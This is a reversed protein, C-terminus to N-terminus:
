AREGWLGGTYPVIDKCTVDDSVSLKEYCETLHETMFCHDCKGSADLWWAPQMRRCDTCSAYKDNGVTMTVQSIINHAFNETWSKIGSM